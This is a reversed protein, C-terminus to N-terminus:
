WPLFLCIETFRPNGIEARTWRRMVGDFPEELVIFRRNVCSMLRSLLRCQFTARPGPGRYNASAQARVDRGRFTARPGTGRSRRLAFM